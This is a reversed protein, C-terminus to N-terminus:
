RSAYSKGARERREEPDHEFERACMQRIDTERPIKGPVGRAPTEREQLDRRNGPNVPETKQDCRVTRHKRVCDEHTLM